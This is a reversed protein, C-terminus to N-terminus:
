SGELFAQSGINPVFPSVISLDAGKMNTLVADIVHNEMSTTWLSIRRYPKTRAYFM